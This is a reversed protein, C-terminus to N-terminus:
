YHNDSRGLVSGQEDLGDVAVSFSERSLKLRVFGRASKPM